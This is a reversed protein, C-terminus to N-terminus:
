WVRWCRSFSLLDWTIFSANQVSQAALPSSNKGCFCCALSVFLCFFLSATKRSMEVCWFHFVHGIGHGRLIEGNSYCVLIFPKATNLNQKTKPQKLIQPTPFGLAPPSPIIRNQWPPVSTWVTFSFGQFRRIGQYVARSHISGPLGDNTLQEMTLIGLIWWCHRVSCGAPWTRVCCQRGFVKRAPKEGRPSSCLWGRLSCCPMKGLWGGEQGRLNERSDVVM